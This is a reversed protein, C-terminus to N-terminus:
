PDGTLWSHWGLWEGRERYHSEPDRLPVYAGMGGWEGLEYWDEFEEKTSLGLSQVIASTKTFSLYKPKRRRVSQGHQEVLQARNVRWDGSAGGIGDPVAPDRDHPASSSMGDAVMRVRVSSAVAQHSLTPMRTSSHHALQLAPLASSHHTRQLAPLLLAPLLLAPLLLPALLM